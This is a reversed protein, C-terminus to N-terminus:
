IVGEETVRRTVITQYAELADRTRQAFVRREQDIDYRFRGQHILTGDESYVDYGILM